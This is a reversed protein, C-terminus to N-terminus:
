VLEDSTISSEKALTNRVAEEHQYYVNGFNRDCCVLM